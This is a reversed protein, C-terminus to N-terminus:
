YLAAVAFKSYPSYSYKSAEYAKKIIQKYKTNM